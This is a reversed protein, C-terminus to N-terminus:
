EHQTKAQGHGCVEMAEVATSAERHECGSATSAATATVAAAALGGGGGTNSNIRSWGSQRNLQRGGGLEKV